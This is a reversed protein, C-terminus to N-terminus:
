ENQTAEVAAEAERLVTLVCEAIMAHGVANPHFDLELPDMVANCLNEEVAEFAAYVDAVEYGLAEAGQEIYASLLQAGMGMGDALSVYDGSFHKYPNYQTALIIRVDPNVARIATLVAAMNQAFVGLEIKMEESKAFPEVGMSENGELVIQAAMMLAQQRPDDNNTMIATVDRKRVALLAPVNANYLDAIHAYLLDLLDNGGCTITILEARTVDALVSPDALQRLIGTATNGNVGHNILDYGGQEAVLSAFTQKEDSLGYGATISDGMAVYIRGEDEASAGLLPMLLIMALLLCIMRKM